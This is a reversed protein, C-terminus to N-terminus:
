CYPVVYNMEESNQKYVVFCILLMLYANQLRYINKNSPEGRQSGVYWLFSHM